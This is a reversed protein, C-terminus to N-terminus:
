EHGFSRRLKPLEQSNANCTENWVMLKVYPLAKFPAIANCCLNGQIKFAQLYNKGNKWCRDLKYDVSIGRGPEKIEEYGYHNSYLECLRQGLKTGQCNSTLLRGQVYKRGMMECLIRCGEQMRVCPSSGPGWASIDRRFINVLLIKRWGATM